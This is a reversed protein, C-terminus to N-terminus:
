TSGSEMLEGLADAFPHDGLDNMLGFLAMPSWTALEPGLGGLMITRFEEPGPEQGLNSSMLAVQRVMAELVRHRPTGRSRIMEWADLIPGALAELEERDMFLDESVLELAWAKEREVQVEAPLACMAPSGPLRSAVRAAELMDGTEMTFLLRARTALVETDMTDARPIVLVGAEHMGAWAEDPEVVTPEMDFMRLVLDRALGVLDWRAPGCLLLNGGRYLTTVMHTVLAEDLPHAKRIDSIAGWLDESPTPEIDPEPAAAGPQRELLESLAEVMAALRKISEALDRNGPAGGLDHDAGADPAEELGAEDEPEGGGQGWSGSIEHHDDEPEEDWHRRTPERHPAEDRPTEDEADPRSEQAVPEWGPEEESPEGEEPAPVPEVERPEEEPGTGAEEDSPEDVPEPTPEDERPEEEPGQGEEEDSPEDEPEPFPEDGGDDSGPEDGAEGPGGDEQYAEQGGAEHGAEETQGGEDPSEGGPPPEVETIGGMAEDERRTAPEDGQEAGETSPEGNAGGPTSEDAGAGGGRPEGADVAPEPGHLGSFSPDWEETRYGRVQDAVDEPAASAAAELAPGVAEGALLHDMLQDAFDLISEIPLDGFFGVAAQIETQRVLELAISTDADVAGASYPAAILAFTLGTSTCLDALDEAELPDGGERGPRVLLIRCRKRMVTGRGLFVLGNYRGTGVADLLKDYDADELLEVAGGADRVREALAAARDHFDFPEQGRPTVSATVLLLSLEEPATGRGRRAQEVTEYRVGM